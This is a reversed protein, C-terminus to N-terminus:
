FVRDRERDMLAEFRPDDQIPRLRYLNELMAPSYLTPESLLNELVELAEEVNGLRAHVAALEFLQFPGNMADRDRPMIEVARSAERVAEERFGLGAYAWGLSAHYREEDPSEEIRSQVVTAAAQYKTRAAEERGLAHLTEAELLEKPYAQYQRIFFDPSDSLIALADEYRGETMAIEWGELPPPSEGFVEWGRPSGDRLSTLLPLTAVPRNRLRRAELLASEAEEYRRMRLLTGGWEMWVRGSSPYLAAASEFSSLAAEWRGTRRETLARFYHYEYDGRLTGSARGYWELAGEFDKEVRYLYLGMALQADESEPALDVAREAAVRAAEKEEELRVGAWNRDSLRRALEAQAGVFGPDREVAGRLLDLGEQGRSALGRLFLDYAESNSTSRRAARLQEEERLEVNMSDAVTRVIESQVEFLNETSVVRDFVESWIHDETQVDILQAIIRVQDGARQVSGELVYGVNLDRGIEPILRRQIDRYDEISTRSPVRLGPVRSLRTLLEDQIGDTLYQDSSLDSRNEFPLVAIGPQRSLVEAFDGGEDALQGEPQVPQVQRGVMSLVGGAVVLLAAVM